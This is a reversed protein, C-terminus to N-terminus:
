NVSVRQKVYEAYVKREFPVYVGKDRLERIFQAVLKRSKVIGIGLYKAVDKANWYEVQTVEEPKTAM